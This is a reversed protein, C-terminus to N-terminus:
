RGRPDGPAGPGGPGGPGGPEGPAAPAGPDGPEAPEGPVPAMLPAMLVTEHEPLEQETVSVPVPERTRTRPAVIESLSTCPPRAATRTASWSTVQVSPSLADAPGRVSVHVSTVLSETVRVTEGPQHPSGAPLRTPPRRCPERGASTGAGPPRRRCGPSRQSGALVLSVPAPPPPRRPPRRGSPARRRGPSRPRRARGPSVPAPSPTRPPAPSRSPGGGTQLADPPGCPGPFQTDSNAAVHAAGAPDPPLLTM